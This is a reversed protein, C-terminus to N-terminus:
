KMNRSEGKYFAIFDVFINKFGNKAAFKGQFTFHPRELQSPASGFRPPPLPPRSCTLPEPSSKEANVGPIFVYLDDYQHASSESDEPLACRAEAGPGEEKAGGAREPEETGEASQM